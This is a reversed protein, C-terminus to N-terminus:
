TSSNNNYNSPILDPSSMVSLRMSFYCKPLSFLGEVQGAQSDLMLISISLYMWHIGLLIKQIFIYNVADKFLWLLYLTSICHTLIIYLFLM